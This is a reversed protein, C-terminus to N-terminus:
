RSCITPRTCLLQPPPALRMEKQVAVKARQIASEMTLTGCSAISIEWNSSHPPSGRPRAHVSLHPLNGIEGIVYPDNYLRLYLAEAIEGSTKITIM